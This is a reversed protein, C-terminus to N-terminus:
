FSIVLVENQFSIILTYSVTVYPITLKINYCVVPFPM